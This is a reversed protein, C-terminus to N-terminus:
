IQFWNGIQHWSCAGASVYVCVGFCFRFFYCWFSDWYRGFFGWYDCGYFCCWGGCCCCCWCCCCCNSGYCWRGCNSTVFTSRLVFHHATCRAVFFRPSHRFHATSPNSNLDWWGRKNEKLFLLSKSSHCFHTTNTPKKKTCCHTHLSQKKKFWM